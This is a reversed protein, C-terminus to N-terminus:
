FTKNAKAFAYLMMGSCIFLKELSKKVTEREKNRVRGKESKKPFARRSDQSNDHRWLTLFHLHLCANHLKKFSNWEQRWQSTGHKSFCYITEISFFVRLLRVCRFIFLMPEVCRRHCNGIHASYFIVSSAPFFFSHFSNTNNAKRKESHMIAKAAIKVIRPKKESAHGKKDNGKKEREKDCVKRWQKDDRSKSVAEAHQKRKTHSKMEAWSRELKKNTYIKSKYKIESPLRHPKLARISNPHSFFWVLNASYTKKWCFFLPLSHPKTKQRM